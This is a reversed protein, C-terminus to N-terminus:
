STVWRCYRRKGIVRRENAVSTLIAVTVDITKLLVECIDRIISTFVEHACFQLKRIAPIALIKVGCIVFAVHCVSQIVLAGCSVWHM